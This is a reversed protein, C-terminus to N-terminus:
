YGQWASMVSSERPGPPSGPPPLLAKAWSGPQKRALVRLLDARCVGEDGRPPGDSGMGASGLYYLIGAAADRPLTCAVCGGRTALLSGCPVYRVGEVVRVGSSSRAAAQGCCADFELLATLAAQRASSLLPASATVLGLPKGAGGRAVLLPIAQHFWLPLADDAIQLTNIVRVLMELGRAGEDPPLHPAPAPINHPCGRATDALRRLLQLSGQALSTTTLGTGKVVVEGKATDHWLHKVEKVKGRPSGAEGEVAEQGGQAFLGERDPRRSFQIGGITTHYPVDEVEAGTTCSSWAATYLRGDDRSPRNFNITVLSSDRRVRVSRLPSGAGTMVGLHAHLTHLIKYAERVFKDHAPYSFDLFDAGEEIGALSGPCVFLRFPPSM